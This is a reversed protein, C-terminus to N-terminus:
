PTNTPRHPQCPTPPICPPTTPAAVNVAPSLKIPHLFARRNLPMDQVPKDPILQNLTSTDTDISIATAAVEVTQTQSAVKMSLRLGTVKGVEVAVNEARIKDFGTHSVTVEYTGLPLDPFTFEGTGTTTTDRRLQTATNVAQVEAGAIAAGSADTVSGTISGRFTQTFALSSLLVALGLVVFLRTKMVGGKYAM